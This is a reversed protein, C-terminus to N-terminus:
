FVLIVRWIIGAIVIGYSISILTLLIAKKLGFEKILMGLANICPVGITAAVGFTYIQLASLHMTLNSGLTSILMGGTLDKQLFGFVLPIITVEPLNLWTTIASLPDIFLKTIDLADLIGYLMGGIILLPIVIYIFGKMRLWSKVLINKLLPKRYPPLELIFYNEEHKFFKKAALGWIVAALFLTLFVYIALSVSGYYGVIGMIIAIRSSCPVFPLFSAMYFKEKKSSLIRTSSIAPVTCGLGLMLPIFAKGPLNVKNLLNAAHIILRTLIGVDELFGLIIYFLLVYPLAVSIGASLGILGKSLSVEWITNNDTKFLNLLNDTADTLINQLYNGLLLLSGFLVIFIVFTIAPGWIKHLLYKDLNQGPEKGTKKLHKLQTVQRAIYSATGFKTVTIDRKINPHNDKIKDRILELKNQETIYKYFDADQELIRIAIFRKPLESDKIYLCLEQIAEEIHDDYHIEFDSKKRNLRIAENTLKKIGKKTVPNITIIPIDLIAELRDTNIFVGKKNAEEIFNLALIVPAQAKIIQFLLYLGKDLSTADIVLIIVDNKKNFLAKGAVKEEESMDSISYIGPTDIIELKIGDIVKTSRTIEVTTGPYNSIIVKSGVLANLLSSKGVNPQGILIVRLNSM